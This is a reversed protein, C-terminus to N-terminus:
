PALDDIQEHLDQFEHPHTKMRRKLRYFSYGISCAVVIAVLILQNGRNETRPPRPVQALLTLLFDM